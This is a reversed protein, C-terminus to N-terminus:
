FHPRDDTENSYSKKKVSHWGTSWLACTYVNYQVFLVLQGTKRWKALVEKQM